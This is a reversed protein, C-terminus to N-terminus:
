MQMSMKLGFFCSKDCFSTSTSMGTDLGYESFFYTLWMALANCVYIYKGRGIKVCTFIRWMPIVKDPTQRHTQGTTVSEQYNHM